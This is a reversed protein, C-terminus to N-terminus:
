FAYNVDDMGKVQGHFRASPHMYTNRCNRNHFHLKLHVKETWVVIVFTIQIYDM